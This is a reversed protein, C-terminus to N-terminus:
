RRDPDTQTFDFVTITETGPSLEGGAVSVWAPVKTGREGRRVHRGRKKWEPFTLVNRNTGVRTRELTGTLVEITGEM